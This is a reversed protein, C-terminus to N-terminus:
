CPGSWPARADIEFSTIKICRCGEGRLADAGLYAAEQDPFYVRFPGDWHAVSSPRLYSVAYVATESM